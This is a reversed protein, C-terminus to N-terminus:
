RILSADIWELCDKRLSELKRHAEDFDIPRRLVDSELVEGVSEFMRDQLGLAALITGVRGGGEKAEKSLTVFPKRFLISFVTGHFSDTFVFSCNLFYRMWNEVCGPETLPVELKDAGVAAAGPISVAEMGLDDYVVNMGHFRAPIIMYNFVYKGKPKVDGKEALEEFHHPDCLLVPDLLTRAKIGMSKCLKVGSDERVSVRNFKKLLAAFREKEEDTGAFEGKGFSSAIAVKNRWPEVFDLTYAELSEQKILNRNWVQDSGVVFNRIRPNLSKRQDEKDSFWRDRSYTPYGTKYLRPNPLRGKITHRTDVFVPEMGMDEILNYLAYYTLVGGYNFVRWFGTIGVDYRRGLCYEMARSVPMGKDLLHYFRERQSNSRKKDAYMNYRKSFSLPIRRVYAADDKIGDFITKGKDNNVLVTSVGDRVDTDPLIMDAEFLEGITLDGVRPTNAFKCGACAEATFLCESYGKLYPDDVINRVTGDEYSVV